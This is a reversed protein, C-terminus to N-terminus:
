LFLLSYIEQKIKLESSREKTHEITTSRWSYVHQYARIYAMTQRASDARTYTFILGHEEKRIKRHGKKESWTRMRGVRTKLSVCVCQFDHTANRIHSLDDIIITYTKSGDM